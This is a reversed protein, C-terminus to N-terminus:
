DDKKEEKADTQNAAAGAQAAPKEQANVAASYLTLVAAFLLYRTKM